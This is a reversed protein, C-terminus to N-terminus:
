GNNYMSLGWLKPGKNIKFMQRDIKFHNQKGYDASIYKPNLIKDIFDNKSNKIFDLLDPGSLEKFWNESICGNRDTTKVKCGLMKAEVLLRNFTEFVGPIFLLESYESMKEILDKYPLPGVIDYDIGNSECIHKAYSTNKISNNSGLVMTKGNKIKNSNDSIIGLHEESWISTSLNVVNDLGLNLAVINSHKLSQCYISKANEYFSRNIVQNSPLIYDDYNSVDRTKSYKHDHEIISYNCKKSIHNKSAESLNIFNGILLQGTLDEINVEHCKIKEVVKGSAILGKIIEENVLEGGGFVDEVFFDAIFKIKEM